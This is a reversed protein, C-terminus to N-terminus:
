TLQGFYQLQIMSATGNYPRRQWDISNLLTPTEMTIRNRPSLRVPTASFARWPEHLPWLMSLLGLIDPVVVDGYSILDAVTNFSLYKALPTRELWNRDPRYYYSFVNLARIEKPYSENARVAERSAVGIDTESLHPQPHV